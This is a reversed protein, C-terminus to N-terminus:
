AGGRAKRIDAAVKTWASKFTEVGNRACRNLYQTGADVQDDALGRPFTLHERVFGEPEEDVWGAARKTGDPYRAETAHPLWVNGAAWLPETAWARAEKSGDPEIEEFGPLEGQLADIVAPGNAKGEVLKRLARPYRAAMAALQACTAVFGWLGRAQDVLFHDPGKAYWAQIVVHSSTKKDKFACDVSLAWTGGAPLETWRHKFYSEKFIEGERGTPRQQLQAPARWKLSKKMAAVAEAPIRDPVLLEGEHTRPDGPWRHPHGPEFEMPLCLVTADGEAIVHGALDREHLRQMVIVRASATHDAFRTPMTGDWWDIVADLEVGSTADAGEPDIPDDVILTDCHEGIWQGHVTQSYRMGGASTRFTLVSDSQARGEPIAAHPWRARYWDSKVLARMKDADRTVIREGHSGVMWRHGPDFTWVWAPFLVSVILSKSCGPPINIVLKRVARRAVRELAACLADLHWSWRLPKAPEVLRWARRVFEALGRRRVAERDIDALEPLAIAVSV